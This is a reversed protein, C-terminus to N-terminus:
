FSVSVSKARSHTNFHVVLKKKQRLKKRQTKSVILEFNSEQAITGQSYTAILDVDEELLDGWKGLM